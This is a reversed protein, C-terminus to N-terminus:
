KEVYHSKDKDAFLAGRVTNRSRPVTMSVVGSDFNENFQPREVGPNEPEDDDIKIGHTKL